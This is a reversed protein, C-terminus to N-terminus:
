SKHCERPALVSLGNKPCFSSPLGEPSVETHCVHLRFSSMFRTRLSMIPKTTVHGLALCFSAAPHLRNSGASLLRVAPGPLDPAWRSLILPLALDFLNESGRGPWPNEQSRYLSPFSNSQGRSHDQSNLSEMWERYLHSPCACGAM